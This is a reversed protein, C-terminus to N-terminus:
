LNPAKDINVFRGIAKSEAELTGKRVEQPLPGTRIEASSAGAGPGVLLDFEM